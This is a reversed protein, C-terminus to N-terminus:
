GNWYMGPSRDMGRPRHLVCVLTGSVGANKDSKGGHGHTSCLARVIWQFARCPLLSSAFSPCQVGITGWSVWGAKM